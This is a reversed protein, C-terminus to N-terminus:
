QICVGRNLMAGTTRATKHMYICQSKRDRVSAVSEGVKKGFCERDRARAEDPVYEETEFVCGRM